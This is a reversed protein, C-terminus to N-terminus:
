RGPGRLPSRHEFFARYLCPADCKPSVLTDITSHTEVYLKYENTSTPSQLNCNSYLSRSLYLSLSLTLSNSLFAFFYFCVNCQKIEFDLLYKVSKVLAKRFNKHTHAHSNPGKYTSRKAKRLGFVDFSSMFKLGKSVELGKHVDLHLSESKPFLQLFVAIVNSLDSTQM